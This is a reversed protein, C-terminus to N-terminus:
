PWRHLRWPMAHVRIFALLCGSLYTGSCVDIDADLAKSWYLLMRRFPVKVALMQRGQRQELQLVARSIIRAHAERM